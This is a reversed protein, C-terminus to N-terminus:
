YEKRQTKTYFKGYNTPWRKAWGYQVKYIVISQVPLVQTLIENISLMYISIIFYYYIKNNIWRYYMKILFEFFVNLIIKYRM